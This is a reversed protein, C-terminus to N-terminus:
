PFPHPITVPHFEDTARIDGHERAVNELRSMALVRQYNGFDIPILGPIVVKWVQAGITRALGETLDFAIPAFGASECQGISFRLDAALSTDLGTVPPVARAASHGLSALAVPSKGPRRWRRILPRAGPHAFMDAHDEMVRVRSFDALMHALDAGRQERHLAVVQFDSAVEVLASLLAREPDPHSGAGVCTSGGPEECVAIVTPIDVGITADLFVVEVGSLALRSMYSRSEDSIISDPDIPALSLGGYWAALFADREVAELLGFLIAEEASGGIACGNSSDQVWPTTDITPSFFVLREPVAAYEGLLAGNSHLAQGIAWAGVEPRAIRWDGRDLGFGDLGIVTIGGPIERRVDTITAHECASREIGELIGLRTADTFNGCHGGWPKTYSDTGRYEILFGSSKATALGNLDYDISIGISAHVPSVFDEEAVDRFFYDLPHTRYSRGSGTGSISPASAVSKPEIPKEHRCVSRASRTQLTALDLSIGDPFNCERAAAVTLPHFPNMRDSRVATLPAGTRLVFSDAVNIQEQLCARCAHLGPLVTHRLGEIASM